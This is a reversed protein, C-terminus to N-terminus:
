LKNLITQAFQTAYEPGSATIINKYSVVGSEIIKYLSKDIENQLDPYCTLELNTFLGSNILIIPAGCIAAILKNSINFENLINFILKNNYYSKIGKGGIIVVSKFNKENMNFFNLDPKVKLGKNGVCLNNTDSAIFIKINCKILTNKVSLFELENFDSSPLILLISNNQTKIM